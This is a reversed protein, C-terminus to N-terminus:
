WLWAAGRVGSSDGHKAQRIPTACSDSFVYNGLQKPLESYLEVVNSLGGGVVVVNPDLVNIVSAVARALRDLYLAWTAQAGALEARMDTIVVRADRSASHTTCGAYLEALAPGSLYTEICGHKGCYCQGGPCEDPNRWPLPNHGWEGAIAHPGTWVQKNISIGGGVGTGLIIAFVVADNAGAGDVAESIALCNADNATRVERCLVASLDRDLPKGLCWTSNANKVVGTAPSIAGPIGVGVSCRAALASEVALVLDRICRLTAAYDGRPTAVRQRHLERGDEALAIVEIKTGGFDVGIRISRSADTV